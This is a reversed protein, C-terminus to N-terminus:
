ITIATAVIASHQGGGAVQIVKINKIKAKSFNLRKPVFEDNEGGHGLALSDGFGWTYVENTETLVINHNGGCEIQIVKQYNNSNNNNTRSSSLPLKLEIPLSSCGGISLIENDDTGLQGSDGRGFAYMMGNSSLALSHHEGGRLMVIGKDSLASCYHLGVFMKTTSNGLGLQGYNNLGCTYIEDGITGVMSHYSGCGIIKINKAIQGQQQQEAEMFYMPGPTLHHKYIVELDYMKEDDQVYQM